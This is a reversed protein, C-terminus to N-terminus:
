MVQLSIYAYYTDYVIASFWAFWHAGTITEACKCLIVNNRQVRFAHSPVIAFLSGAALADILRDRDCLHSKLSM